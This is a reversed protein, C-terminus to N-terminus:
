EIERVMEKMLEKFGVKRYFEVAPSASYVRLALIRAGKSKGFEEVKEILKRGIGAKRFEERVFLDHLYVSKKFTKAKMEKPDFQKEFLNLEVFLDLVEEVSGTGVEATEM